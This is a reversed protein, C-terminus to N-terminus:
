ESARNLYPYAAKYCVPPTFNEKICRPSLWRMLNWLSGSKDNTGSKRGGGFPQQAVVAGTPKDNIYFNGASNKLFQEAQGVAKRDQAFIAGTLAYASTSDVLELVQAFQDDPYAYVTLVPGFIEEEMTKYRPNTTVIVTPEIFYGQKDSFGGGALIRVDPSQQAERIYATIKDYAKKDIVANIFNNPDVVTGMKMTKLADAVYALIDDTLSQPLYARSAASCKQGQYEFAGCLLATAVERVCASRHAVVFDKGGTEGVIRPYSRYVSLHQAITQWLANFVVTSGTFHLGAFHKDALCVDSIQQSDGCVLNIVGAPLGAEELAELCVYASLVQAQSPKWVVVNGCLAPACALNVAISTFNFPAVAYIFGELPRYDMRNHIRGASIPQVQYIESLYHVNFRLFDCLECISDIEAQYINKSQALMTAALIKARYKTAILEAAKLFIGARQVFPMKEWNQKAALAIQVAEHVCEKSAVSATGLNQSLDHPQVIEKTQTTFVRKGGIVLPVKTPQSRM